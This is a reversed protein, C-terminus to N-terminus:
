EDLLGMQELMAKRKELESTSKFTGTITRSRDIHDHKGLIYIFRRIWAIPLLYPRGDLFGCKPYGIMYEYDPFTKEIFFTIRNKLINEGSQILADSIWNSKNGEDDFGFVGNNLIKETIEETLEADIREFQVPMKIGFWDDILSYCSHAFKDLKLEQLKDEIWDWDLDERGKAVVAIDMFQRLGVGRHMFHKRLHMLLFVFHYNWDLRNAKVYPMFNGFFSLQEATRADKETLRDHFEFHMDKYECSWVHENSEDPNPSQVFGHKKLIDVAESLRGPEVVVDNDGMTRLAPVPYYQAVELGKVSFFPIGTLLGSIFNMAKVRNAYYFLSAAYIREFDSAKEAPIMDKCQHFIIGTVQHCQSLRFLEDWDVSSAITTKQKLM